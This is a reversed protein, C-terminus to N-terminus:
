FKFIVEIVYFVISILVCVIPPILIIYGLIRFAVGLKKHKNNYLITGTVVSAFGIFLVLGIGALIVLLGGSFAM